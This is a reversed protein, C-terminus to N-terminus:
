PQGPGQHCPFASPGGGVGWGLRLVEEENWWGANDRVPELAVELWLTQDGDGGRKTGM